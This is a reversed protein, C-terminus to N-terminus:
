ATRRLRLAQWTQVASWLACIALGGAERAVEDSASRMHWHTACVGSVESLTRTRLESESRGFYSTAKALAEAASDGVFEKAEIKPDYM